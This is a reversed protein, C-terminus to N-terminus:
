RGGIVSDWDLERDVRAFDLYLLFDVINIGLQRQHNKSLIRLEDLPTGNLFQDIEYSLSSIRLQIVRETVFYKESFYTLYNYDHGDRLHNYTECIEPIFKHYPVLMEATGENAEWEFYSNQTLKDYCTYTSAPHPRWFHILEHMCDFNQELNDRQSNLCMLSHKEGKMLVGGISSTSFRYEELTLNPFCAALRKSNISYANHLGLNTKIVDIAVYLEAKTM